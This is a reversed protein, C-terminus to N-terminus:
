CIFWIPSTWASDNMDDRLGDSGAAGTANDREDDGEGEGNDQGNQETVRVYIYEGCVVHLPITQVTASPVDEWTEWEAARRGDVGDWDSVIDVTYPGEDTPDNDSGPTQWVRVLVEVDAEDAQLDVSEGMWHVRNDFRVQYAVALEDDETAYVRNSRFGDMLDDYTIGEVWVATRAATVTGWNRWHTDQNAAPSLHFGKNLFRRYWNEWQAERHTKAESHNDPGTIHGGPVTTIISMTKVLDDVAAVFDATSAYQNEGYNGVRRRNEGSPGSNPHNYQLFEVHDEAWEYLERYDANRIRDPPTAEAGILNVHNGTGSTGWEIAPIAVFDAHQRNFAMAVDFLEDQYEVPDMRLPRSAPADTAQHHDSLALFDLGNQRAYTYAQQPGMLHRFQQRVDDSLRSHAHLNGFLVVLGDYSRGAVQPANPEMVALAAFALPVLGVLFRGM